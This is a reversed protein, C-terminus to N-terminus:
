VSTIEAKLPSLCLSQKSNLALGTSELGALAEPLLSRKKEKKKRKKKLPFFVFSIFHFLFFANLLGLFGFNLVKLGLMM